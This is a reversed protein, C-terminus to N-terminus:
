KILGRDVDRYANRAAIKVPDAVLPFTTLIYAFEEETLGYLHAILGDLEARLRGREVENAVSQKHSGIGAEKALDDFEPTTCILRAAREVIPRFAPDKETLRPVPLQYIYFMNINASVMQRLYFDVSFSNLVAQAYILECDSLIVDIRKSVLISNGCYVNKPIPGAILTRMDTNRAIARIGLRYHQYDLQQNNDSRGRGVLAKRADNESVWYRGESFKPNFQHIMKGEFLIYSRPMPETKFLYSDNTMHFESSLVLNWSDKNKEGMLPFNLMKESIRVDLDNKFEMVSLSDPSLRRVLELSIRLLNSRTNLFTELLKPGIAERPNIRFSVDFEHTLGGKCFTLLCFKFSHHVADKDFIGGENSFSRLKDIATEAFLMERLQKTGLDTYIGSPIVIGCEGGKCLLNFSQEVFLKYLNIDSGTKKGNVVSIQNKYQTSGRFYQSVHPFRSQYVIWANCISVDKLLIAQEKEFEKIDMNKKTILKSYEALFEKANPKFIEWPPNTIIADFGGRKNLIEDFEYGWHFPHQAEIDKITLARKNPKGEKNKATDWTAEEFKIGLSNFDELLIKNLTGVAEKKNQEITDRMSRLDEAYGATHRYLDVLRNKEELLRSFTEVTRQNRYEKTLDKRVTNNFSGFDLAPAEAVMGYDQQKTPKNSSPTATLSDFKAPDVHILGILSNGALINFDINPLPELEDVHQAAAVLALFLRLKAIETAEEMIDVGFLNDTIISKKIFYAISKHESKVKRLWATLNRDNLFEIKGIVASYLNILTKMAAVLFAGSGCAPDLLSLKPLIVMLLERCLAEDLNLLLEAISDFQRPALVGPIGLTNVKDLILKYITHECLYETIEPRTYYAGFAKQNIYKEFIYGLVDPNIEDDKGGPIDNLNWSYRQFLDFLNEFAIDPISIDPNTQEITHPLFLGGNLYKISGLLKKAEPSREHEPKAFGEFFLAKLFVSFFRDEGSKAKIAILKEHLYNQNGGDLFGKKQLFYIFMLRNLLVSAYWRRLRDDEIGEIFNLFELRKKDFEGFFKKTVREIDLAKKLRSAVTTVPLNGAEDLESIDVVMAGLKSLFLDGPQGTVYLHERPFIKTGERKVWYWLSQTRNQDLFILLNEHHHRSVDKHLAARAKADPMRGDTSHIEFVVVGSLQAIKLREYIVGEHVLMVAQIGTPQSWGLEEIFLRNFDFLQLLDRTKEINLVSV